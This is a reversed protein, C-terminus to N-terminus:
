PVVLRWKMTSIAEWSQFDSPVLLTGVGYIHTLVSSPSEIAEDMGERGWGWGGQM